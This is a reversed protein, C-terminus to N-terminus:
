LFFYNLIQSSLNEGRYFSPNLDSYTRHKSGPKIGIHINQM